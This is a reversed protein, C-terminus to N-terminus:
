AIIRFRRSVAASFTNAVETLIWASTVIPNQLRLTVEVARDHDQDTQLLLAVYYGSDAFVPTM